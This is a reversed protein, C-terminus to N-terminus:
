LNYHGPLPAMALTVSLLNTEHELCSLIPGYQGSHPCAFKKDSVGHLAVFM